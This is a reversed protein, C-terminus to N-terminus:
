YQLDVYDGDWIGADRFTESPALYRHLRHCYLMGGSQPFRYYSHYGHLTQAIHHVLTSAPVSCPIEMDYGRVNGEFKFSLTVIVSQM